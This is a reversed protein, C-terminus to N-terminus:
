AGPFHVRGAFPETAGTCFRDKKALPHIIMSRNNLNTTTRENNTTTTAYWRLRIL